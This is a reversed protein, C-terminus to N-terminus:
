IVLIIISIFEEQALEEVEDINQKLNEDCIHLNVTEPVTFGLYM